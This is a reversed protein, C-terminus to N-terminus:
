SLIIPHIYKKFLLSIPYTLCLVVFVVIIGEIVPLLELHIFILLKRTFSVFPLHICFITLSNEGIKRVCNGIYTLTLLKSLYMVILSGIIASIYLIIVSDGYNRVSFNVNQSNPLIFFLLM